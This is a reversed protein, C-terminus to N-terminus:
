FCFPSSIKSFEDKWLSDLLIDALYNYRPMNLHRELFNLADPDGSRIMAIALWCKVEECTDNIFCRYFGKNFFPEELMAISRAAAQRVYQHKDTLMMSLVDNNRIIPSTGLLFASMVRVRWNKDFSGKIIVQQAKKLSRWNFSAPDEFCGLSVIAWYRVTANRDLCCDLITELYSDRLCLGLSHLAAGLMLSNGSGLIEQFIYDSESSTIAALTELAMKKYYFNPHTMTILAPRVSEDYDLKALSLIYLAEFQPESYKEPEVDLIDYLCGLIEPDENCAMEIIATQGVLSSSGNQFSSIDIERNLLDEARYFDIEALAGLAAAKIRLEADYAFPEILHYTEPDGIKGLWQIASALMPDFRSRLIRIIQNKRSKLISLPLCMTAFNIEQWDYKPHSPIFEESLSMTM